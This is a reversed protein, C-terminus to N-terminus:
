SAFRAMQDFLDNSRRLTQLAGVSTRNAHSAGSFPVILLCYGTFGTAGSLPYGREPLERESDLFSYFGLTNSCVPLLALANAQGIPL